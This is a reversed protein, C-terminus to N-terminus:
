NSWMHVSDSWVVVGDDGKSFDFYYNGAGVSTWRGSGSGSRPHSVSGIYDDSIPWTRDRYLKITFTGTTTPSSNTALSINMNSTDYSRTDGHAYWSFNLTSYYSSALAAAPLAFATLLVFVFIALLAPNM